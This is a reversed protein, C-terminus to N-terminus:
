ASEETEGITEGVASAIDGAFDPDSSLHALIRAIDDRGVFTQRTPSVPVLDAVPRGNVTVRLTQGAEVERLVQAINNRLERQPITKM